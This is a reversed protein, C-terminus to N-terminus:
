SKSVKPPWSLKHMIFLHQTPHYIPIAMLNEFPLLEKSTTSRRLSKFSHSTIRLLFTNSPLSCCSFVWSAPTLVLVQPSLHAPLDHGCPPIAAPSTTKVGLEAQRPRRWCDRQWNSCRSQQGSFARKKLVTDM